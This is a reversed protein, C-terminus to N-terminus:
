IDSKIIMLKCLDNQLRYCYYKNQSEIDICFSLWTWIQKDNKNNYIIECWLKYPEFVLSANDVTGYDGSLNKVVLKASDFWSINKDINEGSFTVDFGHYGSWINITLLWYREWDYYNSVASQGVFKQYNNVFEEKISQANLEEIRNSWFRMTISLLVTIVAIVIMMELLTYWSKKM